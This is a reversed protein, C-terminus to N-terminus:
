TEPSVLYQAGIEHSSSLSYTVVGLLCQVQPPMRLLYFGRQQARFGCIVRQRHVM